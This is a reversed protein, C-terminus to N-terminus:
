CVMIAWFSIITIITNLWCSMVSVGSIIAVPPVPMGYYYPIHYHTTSPQHLKNDSIINYHVLENHQTCQGM